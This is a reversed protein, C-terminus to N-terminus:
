ASAGAPSTWRTSARTASTATAPTGSGTGTTTSAPEDHVAAEARARALPQLRRGAAGARRAQTGIRTARSTASGTRCSCSASSAPQAHRECPRACRRHSAARRATSCSATTSAPRRSSRSRGECVNHSVPKEVYVDKGAQCAWITMCRTGTTRRPSRSPTSTRTELVKRIDTYVTPKRVVGKSELGKMKQGIHGEDVDCLGAIEVNKMGAWTTVHNGGRGGLGAIGVRITDNPSQMGRVAANGAMIATSMLFHRRNM